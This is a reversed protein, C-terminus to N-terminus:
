SDSRRAVYTAGDESDQCVVDSLGCTKASLGMMVVM